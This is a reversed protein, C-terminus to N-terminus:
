IGHSMNTDPLTKRVKQTVSLLVTNMPMTLWGGPKRTDAFCDTASCKGDSGTVDIALGTEHESTGPYASYTQAKELGDKKVYSEFLQKQRSHSRYASVGALPLGDKDSAKFLDELADAAEKVMMRKEIRENFTFKVNPYVLNAPTYDEPLKNIKNVLVMVSDADSITAIDDSAHQGSSEDTENAPNSGTGIAATDEQHEATGGSVITERDSPLEQRPGGCASLLVIIIVIFVSPMIRRLM